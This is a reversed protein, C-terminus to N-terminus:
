SPYDRAQAFFPEYPVTFTQQVLSFFTGISLELSSFKLQTEMRFFRLRPDVM